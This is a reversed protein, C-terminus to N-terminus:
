PAPRENETPWTVRIGAAALQALYAQRIDTRFLDWGPPPPVETVALIPM